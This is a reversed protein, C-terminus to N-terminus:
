FNFNIDSGTDAAEPHASILSISIRGSRVVNFDCSDSGEVLIKGGTCVASYSGDPNESIKVTDQYNRRCLPAFCAENYYDSSLANISVILDNGSLSILNELNKSCFEAIPLFNFDNESYDLGPSELSVAIGPIGYLVAQRAAAITGSYIIDTGMNPGHNIGSFVADFKIGFLGSKTACIVCDAPSGSCSWKRDSYRVLELPRSLSIRSSVASQNVSPALIYVESVESLKDALVNIGESHLGDDNTILVKRRGNSQSLIFVEQLNLKMVRLM